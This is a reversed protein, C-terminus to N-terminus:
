NFLRDWIPAAEIITNEGPLCESLRILSVSNSVPEASLRCNNSRLYPKYIFSVVAEPQEVTLSVQNSRVEVIKGAGLRFYGPSPDNRTFIKFRGQEWVKSFKEPRSQYWMRWFKDHTVVASINMLDLYEIVGDEKRELFEKPVVDLYEWRDHQYSSAVLPTKSWEALPAIHGGNLEHLTFGAFMVRGQGAHERIATVLDSVIPGALQFREASKNNTVRWLWSPALTLVAFTISFAFSVIPSRNLPGRAVGGIALSAPIILILGLIILMRELELQPILVPGIAGLLGAYIATGGYVWRSTLGGFLGFAPIGLFILLPNVTEFNSRLTKLVRKWTPTKATSPKPAKLKAKPLEINHPAIAGDASPAFDTSDLAVFKGVQSVHLFITVWPVNILLLLPLIIAVFRKRLLRPAQLVSVLILPLFLLISPSWLAMLTLSAIALVADRKALEHQRDFIKAVLALNLPVLSASLIFGVTGYALAWRYWLISSCISLTVVIPYHAKEIGISRAAVLSSAPVVLFLLAAILYTYSATLDFLYILPSFLFFVNLAGSPFFERAEVGGNWMPNYFPILPFHEKLQMLRYLFSPHDDAFILRGDAHLLFGVIAFLLTAGCILWAVRVRLLYFAAAGVLLAPLFSWTVLTGGIFGHPRLPLDSLLYLMLPFAAGTHLAQGLPKRGTFVGASLAALALLLQLSTPLGFKIVTGPLIVVPGLVVAFILLGIATFTCGNTRPFYM